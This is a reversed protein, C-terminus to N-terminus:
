GIRINLDPNLLMKQGNHDSSAVIGWATPVPEGKTNKTPLSQEYAMEVDLVTQPFDNISTGNEDCQKLGQRYPIIGGAEVIQRCTKCELVEYILGMDEDITEAIASVFHYIPPTAAFANLSQSCKIWDMVFHTDPNPGLYENYYTDPKAYPSYSPIKSWRPYERSKTLTVGDKRYSKCPPSDDIWRTNDYDYYAKRSRGECVDFTFGKNTQADAEDLATGSTLQELLKEQAKQLEENAEEIAETEAAGAGVDNPCSNPASSLTSIQAENIIPNLTMIQPLPLILKYSDARPSELYLTYVPKRKYTGGSATAVELPQSNMIKMPRPKYYLNQVEQLPPYDTASCYPCAELPDGYSELPYIRGAHASSGGSTREGMVCQILNQKSVAYNLESIPYIEENTNGTNHHTYTFKVSPVYRKIDRWEEVVVGDPVMEHYFEYGSIRGTVLDRVDGMRIWWQRNRNIAGTQQGQAQPHNDDATYERMFHTAYSEEGCGVNVIDSSSCKQCSSQKGGVSIHCKNCTTVDNCRYRVVFQYRGKEDAMGYNWKTLTVSSLWENPSAYHGADVTEWMWIADRRQCHPCVHIGSSATESIIVQQYGKVFKRMKNVINVINGKYHSVQRGKNNSEIKSPSNEPAIFMLNFIDKVIKQGQPSNFPNDSYGM